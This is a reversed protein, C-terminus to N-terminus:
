LRKQMAVWKCRPKFEWKFGYIFTWVYFRRWVTIKCNIWGGQFAKSSSFVIDFIRKIIINEMTSLHLNDIEFAPIDDLEVIRTNIMAIEFLEPM